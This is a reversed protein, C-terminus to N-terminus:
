KGNSKNSNLNEVAESFFEKYVDPKKQELLKASLVVRESDKYLTNEKRTDELYTFLFYVLVIFALSPFSYKGANGWFASIADYYVNQEMSISGKIKASVEELLKENSTKLTENSERLTELLDENAKSNKDLAIYVPLFEPTIDREPVGFIRAYYSKDKQM